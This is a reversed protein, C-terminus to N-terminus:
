RGSFIKWVANVLAIGLEFPDVELVVKEAELRIPKSRQTQPQVEEVEQVDADLSELRRLGEEVPDLKPKAKRRRPQSPKSSASKRPPM